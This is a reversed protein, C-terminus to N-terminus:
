ALVSNRVTTRQRTITHNVENLLVPFDTKSVLPIGWSGSHESDKVFQFVKNMGLLQEILKRFLVSFKSHMDLDWSWLEELFWVLIIVFIKRYKATRFTDLMRSNPIYDIWIWVSSICKISSQLRRGSSVMWLLKSSILVEILM